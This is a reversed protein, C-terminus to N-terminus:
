AGTDRQRAARGLLGIATLAALVGLAEIALGEARALDVLALLMGGLGLAALAWLAIWLLRRWRGGPEDVSTTRLEVSWDVLGAVVVLLAALAASRGDLAPEDVALITAYAAVPLVLAGPLAAPWALAAVTGVTGGLAIALVPLRLGSSAALALWGALGASVGM